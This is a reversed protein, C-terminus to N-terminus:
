KTWSLSQMRRYVIDAVLRKGRRNLHIEDTRFSAPPLGHETSGRAILEARIDIFREKYADALRRNCDIIQDYGAQGKRSDEVDGNVLGLVLFHSRGSVLAAIDALVRSPDRYNNNGIWSILITNPDVIHNEFQARIYDSTKGGYSLIEVPARLRLSLYFPWGAAMSDGLCLTDYQTRRGLLSVTKYLLTKVLAAPKPPM